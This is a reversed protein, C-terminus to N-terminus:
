RFVRNLPGRETTIVTGISINNSKFWGQRTELVFKINNTAAVVVNTDLPQLDHIEEITGNPSIYAASLPLLTNKMWFEAQMPAPLDFIMGENEGMNTRFMMGTESQQETVAMETIMEKPGIWLKITPLRPQAETPYQRAPAAAPTSASDAPNAAASNKKCGGILGAFMALLISFWFQNMGALKRSPPTNKLVFKPMM